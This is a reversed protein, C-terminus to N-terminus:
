IRVGTQTTQNSLLERPVEMPMKPTRDWEFYFQAEPPKKSVMSRIQNKLWKTKHSWDLYNLEYKRLMHELFRAEEDDLFGDNM